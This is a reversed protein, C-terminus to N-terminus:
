FPKCILQAIKIHLNSFNSIYTMKIVNKKWNAKQVPTFKKSNCLFSSM